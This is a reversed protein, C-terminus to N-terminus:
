LLRVMRGRQQYEYPIVIYMFVFCCLVVIDASSNDLIPINKNQLEKAAAAAGKAVVVSRVVSTPARLAASVSKCFWILLM